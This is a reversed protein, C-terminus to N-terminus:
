ALCEQLMGIAERHIQSVRAQGVGLKEALQVLPMGGGYFALIVLCHRPPLKRQIFPWVQRLQEAQEPGAHLDEPNPAADPIQLQHNSGPRKLGAEVSTKERERYERRRVADICAGRVRRIAFASFPVGRGPDFKGAVELLALEAPAALDEFTFWTPLKRLAKRAVSHAWELHELALADRQELSATM